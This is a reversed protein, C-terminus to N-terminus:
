SEISKFNSLSFFIKIKFIVQIYRYSGFCYAPDHRDSFWERGDHEFVWCYVTNNSNFTKQQCSKRSFKSSKNTNNVKLFFIYLSQNKTFSNRKFTYIKVSNRISVLEKILNSSITYQYPYFTLYGLFKGLIRLRLLM